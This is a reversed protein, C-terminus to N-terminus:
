IEHRLRAVMAELVLAPSGNRELEDLARTVVEYGRAARLARAPDKTVLARGNKALYAGLALLRDRLVNKDRARADSLTM